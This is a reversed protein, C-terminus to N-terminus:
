AGAGDPKWADLFALIANENYSSGEELESTGQSHLFTGDKELVFIHPYGPISPYDGLFDENANGRSFNVKVILFGGQLREFITAHEHIFLDLRKCWGCWEGGVELLIRKGEVGARAVAMELDASPDRAEDYEAVVYFSAPDEAGTVLDEPSGAPDEAGTVLDEPSGAPDEAGTVLNEPSVASDEAGTVREESSGASGLAENALAASDSRESGGRALFVWSLLGVCSCVVIAKIFIKM